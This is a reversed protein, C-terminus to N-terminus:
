HKPILLIYGEHRYDKTITHTDEFLDYVFQIDNKAPHKHDGPANGHECSENEYIRLDDIIFVDNDTNRNSKIIKLENELPFTTALDRDDDWSGDSRKVTISSSKSYASSLHADIWFLINSEKPIDKIMLPLQSASTGNFLVVNDYSAFKSKALRFSEGLIEVSLYKVFNFKLCHTLATGEGTGTEVFYALNNDKKIAEIDFNSILGM